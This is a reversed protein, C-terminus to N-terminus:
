VWYAVDVWAFDTLLVVFGCCVYVGVRTSLFLARTERFSEVLSEAEHMWERDAEEEGNMMRAWLDKVRRYSQAAEKEKKAELERLQSANLKGPKSTSSSKTSSKDKGKREEFLSTGAPGRPTQNPNDNADTGQRGAIKARRRTEIVAFNSSKLVLTNFATRTSSSVKSCSTSHKVRKAWYKTSEPSIKRQM